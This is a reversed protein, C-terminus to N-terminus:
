TIQNEINRIQEQMSNINTTTSEITQKTYGIYSQNAIVHSRNTKVDHQLGLFIKAFLQLSAHIEHNNAALINTHEHLTTCSKIVAEKM